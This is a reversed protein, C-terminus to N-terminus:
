VLDLISLEVLCQLAAERVSESPDLILSTVPASVQSEFLQATSQGDKAHRQFWQSINVVAKRRIYPSKAHLCCLLDALQKDPSQM